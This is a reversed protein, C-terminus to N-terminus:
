ASSIQMAILVLVISKCNMDAVKEALQDDKEKFKETQQWFEDESIENAIKKKLMDELEQWEQNNNEFLGFNVRKMKRLMGIRIATKAAAKHQMHREFTQADMEKGFAEAEALGKTAEAVLADTDAMLASVAAANETSQQEGEALAKRAEAVM